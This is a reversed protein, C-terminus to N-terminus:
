KRHDRIIVIGSGGAGGAINYGNANYGVGNGTNAVKTTVTCNGCGGLSYKFASTNGFEYTNDSLSQGVSGSPWTYGDGHIGAGGGNGGAGGNYINGPFGGSAGFSISGSLSTTEVFSSSEGYSAVCRGSCGAGGNGVTVKIFSGNAVPISNKLLILGGGGGAGMNYESGNWTGGSGGVGGGVLFVDIQMANISTFTGSTLFRIKWNGDGDDVVECNGTYTFTPNDGKSSNACSYNNAVFQYNATVNFTISDSLYKINGANDTIKVCVYYKKSEVINFTYSSNASSTYGTTPCTSSETILYGYDKVGSYDDIVSLIATVSNEGGNLAITGYPTDNDVYFPKSVEKVCIGTADCAEAILYYIGTANELTYINGTM